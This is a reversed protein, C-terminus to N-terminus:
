TNFFYKTEAARERRTDKAYGSVSVCVWVHERPISIEIGIPKCFFREGSLSEVHNVVYKSARSM